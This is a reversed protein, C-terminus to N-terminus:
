KGRVDIWLHTKLPTDEEGDKYLSFAVQQNTGSELPVFNVESEWVDEHKLFIPSLTGAKQGDIDIEIRYVISEYENNIIGLTVSANEGLIIEQPYEEARGESGLIYFQTFKDGVKPKVIIYGSIGMAGLLMVVLVVSLIMSWRM